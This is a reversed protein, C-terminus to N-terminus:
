RRSAGNLYSRRSIGIVSGTVISHKRKQNPYGVSVIPMVVRSAFCGASMTSPKVTTSVPRHLSKTIPISILLSWRTCIGSTGLRLTETIVGNPGNAHAAIVIGGARHIIEYAETVHRTNAVSCVGNKLVEAPIGLQLLTAEILSLPRNPPFIGLIHAGFHSTFEFGPLVTIKELLRRYEALRTAEEGTLRGAKELVTLFELERQFQEYGAVTNHDTFAIIELGRREAEQLIDLYSVNPEAYDESAPTHLHLDVRIWRMESREEGTTNM